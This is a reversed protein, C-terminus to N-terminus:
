VKPKEVSTLRANIHGQEELVDLKLCALADQIEMTSAKLDLSLQYYSVGGGVLAGVAFASMRQGISSSTKGSKTVKAKLVDAAEKAKAEAQAAEQAKTAEQAQVVKAAATESEQLAQAAKIAEVSKTKDTCMRRITNRFAMMM